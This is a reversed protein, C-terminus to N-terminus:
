RVALATVIHLAEKGQVIESSGDEGPQILSFRKRDDSLFFEPESSVAGGKVERSTIAYVHLTITALKPNHSAPLIEAIWRFSSVESSDLSFDRFRGPFDQLLRPGGTQALATQAPFNRLIEEMQNQALIQALESGRAKKSLDLGGMFFQAFGTVAIQLILLAIILELISLGSSESLPAFSFRNRSASRETKIM